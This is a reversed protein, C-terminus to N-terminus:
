RFYKCKKDKKRALLCFISWRRGGRPWRLPCSDKGSRHGLGDVHVSWTVSGQACGLGGTASWDLSRGVSLGRWGNIKRQVLPKPIKVAPKRGDKKSISNSPSIYMKIHLFFLNYSTFIYIYYLASDLCWCVSGGLQAWAINVMWKEMNILSVNQCLIHSNHLCIFTNKM